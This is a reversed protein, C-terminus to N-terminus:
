SPVAGIPWDGLGEIEDPKSPCVADLTFAKQGEIYWDAGGDANRTCVAGKSGDDSILISWADAGAGRPDYGSAILRRGARRIPTVVQDDLAMLESVDSPAGSAAVIARVAPHNVFAVGEVAENPYKREYASLAPAGSTQATPAASAPTPAMAPAAEMATEATAASEDAPKESAASCGAALVTMVSALVLRKM